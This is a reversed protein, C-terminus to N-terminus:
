NMKVPARLPQYSWSGMKVSSCQLFSITFPWLDMAPSRGQTSAPGLHISRSPLHHLGLAAAVEALEAAPLLM